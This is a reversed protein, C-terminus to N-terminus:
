LKGQKTLRSIVGEIQAETHGRSRLEARMSDATAKAPNPTDPRSTSMAKSTLRGGTHAPGAGETGMIMDQLNKAKNRYDM